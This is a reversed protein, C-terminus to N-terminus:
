IQRVVLLLHICIFLHTGGGVCVCVGSWTKVRTMSFGSIDQWQLCHLDLDTPKLQAPDANNSNIAVIWILCDSQIFVLLLHPM